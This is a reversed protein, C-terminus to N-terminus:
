SSSRKWNSTVKGAESKFSPLQLRLLATFCRVSSSIVDEYVSSLCGVLLKVFPDLKSVLEENTSNPQIRKLRNHLLDLAFVTILHPCSKAGSTDQIHRSKRKKKSPQSSMQDGLGSKNDDFRHYIFCFLDGQDVSPNGEIGAAINRLMGELKSKRKSTVPGQLQWTVPSLLKLAHSRFTVNEAILRLTNLSKCKRTEMKKKRKNISDKEDEKQEDADGLINAEVIYLLDELCHDLKCGTPNPLCESLIYHVTYGLVHVESGKTLISALKGVFLQLYEELGLEKLCAALAKRAEKRTSEMPNRLFNSPQYVLSDINSDMM